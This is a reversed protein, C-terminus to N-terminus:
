SKSKPLSMFCLKARIPETESIFFQTMDLILDRWLYVQTKNEFDDFFASPSGMLEFGPKM